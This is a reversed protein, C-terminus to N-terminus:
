RVVGWLLVFVIVVLAGFLGALNLNLDGTQTRRARAALVSIATAVRTYVGDITIGRRLLRAIWSNDSLPTPRNRAFRRVLVFSLIAVAVPVIVLVSTGIERLAEVIGLALIPYAPMTAAMAESFPGLVFGGVTATVALSILVSVMVRPPDRTSSAGATGLFALAYARWAYGATVVSTVVLVVLPVIRGEAFLSDLLLEKSWFGTFIPIGVLALVGVLFARSTLPMTTRLGGMAFLDRTGAAQIVAGAALFLLAKFIAQSYLHFPGALLAGGGIAAMMYGLQSVTSYALIRKIDRELYALIAALLATGAGVWLLTEPWWGFTVFAPYTRIVLYVGANVMTAAHILASVTTPAEMADPLWVHFPFQASKGFAALLIGVAAITLVERPLSSVLLGSFTVVGASWLAVAAILLGIDGIRTVAFAKLGARRAKPDRHYFSILAFSCLGVVEWFIYFALLTDALALGIMACIFLLVLAYYRSLSYGEDEAHRMYGLSYVIVLCGITGAIAAIVGSLADVRIALEIGLLPIWGYVQIPDTRLMLLNLLSLTATLLGISVAVGDRARRGLRGAVPVLGAGALPVLFSLIPIAESPNM